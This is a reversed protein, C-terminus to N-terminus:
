GARNAPLSLKTPMRYHPIRRSRQVPQHLISPLSFIKTLDQSLYMSSSLVSSVSVPLRIPFSHVTGHRSLLTSLLSKSAVIDNTLNTHLQAYASHTTDLENREKTLEKVMARAAQIDEM